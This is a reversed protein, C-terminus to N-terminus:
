PTGKAQRKLSPPGNGLSAGHPTEVVAAEADKPSGYLSRFCSGCEPGEQGPWEDPEIEDSCVWRLDGTLSRRFRDLSGLRPVWVRNSGCVCPRLDQTDSAAEM